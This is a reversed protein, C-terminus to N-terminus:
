AGFKQQRFTRPSPGYQKKFRLSLYFLSSFGTYDAIEALTQSTYALLHRARSLRQVELYQHPPQGVQRRFLAAFRARSFGFRHAVSELLHQEKLNKALYEVAQQIRPNWRRDGERPNIRSCFLLARELANAALLDSRHTHSRQVSDALILEKLVARRLDAPLHLHRLGPSLEPWNLWELV